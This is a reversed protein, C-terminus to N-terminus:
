PKTCIRPTNEKHIHTASERRASKLTNQSAPHSLTEKKYRLKPKSKRGKVKSNQKECSSM